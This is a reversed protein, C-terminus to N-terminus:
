DQERQSRFMERMEEEFSPLEGDRRMQSRIETRFNTLPIQLLTAASELSDKESPKVSDYGKANKTKLIIDFVADLHTVIEKISAYYCPSLGISAPQTENKKAM